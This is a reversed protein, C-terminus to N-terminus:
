LVDDNVLVGRICPEPQRISLATTTTTEKKENCDVNGERWPVRVISSDTAM